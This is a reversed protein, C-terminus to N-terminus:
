SSFGVARQRGFRLELCTWATVHVGCVCVRACACLFVDRDLVDAAHCVGPFVLRFMRTTTKM